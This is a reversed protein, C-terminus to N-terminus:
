PGTGFASSGSAVDCYLDQGHQDGTKTETGTTSGIGAETHVPNVKIDELCDLVENGGEAIEFYEGIDGLSSRRAFVPVL